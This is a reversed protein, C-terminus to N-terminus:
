STVILRQKDGMSRGRGIFSPTLVRGDGDRLDILEKRIMEHFLSIKPRLLFNDSFSSELMSKIRDPWVDDIDPRGRDHVVYYDLQNRNRVFAYPTQGALVQWMIIGFSYVDAKLNYKNGSLVEPAMYRPSGAGSMEFADNHMNGTPPVVRALGFDFIKVDGRVDFGINAPKLDRFIISHSHLYKIGASIQLGILLREDLAKGTLVAKPINADRPKPKTIRGFFSSRWGSKANQWETIKQDLTEPLYDVILFYGAPGQGFGSSGSYTLGRLKIIHPHCLSSLFEAEAALDGAAQAYSEPNHKQLYDEKLHKLAYRSHKTQGHRYTEDNKMQARSNRERASLASHQAGDGPSQFSTVEYVDSYEGSGLLPGLSIEERHFPAICDDKEKLSPPLSEQLSTRRDQAASIALDHAPDSSIGLSTNTNTPALPTRLSSSSSPPADSDRGGKRRSKLWTLSRSPIIRVGAM